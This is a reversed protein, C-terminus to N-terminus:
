YWIGQRQSPCAGFEQSTLLNILVGNIMLCYGDVSIELEPTKVPM